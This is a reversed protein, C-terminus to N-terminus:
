TTQGNKFRKLFSSKIKMTRILKLFYLIQSHKCNYYRDLINDRVKERIKIRQM